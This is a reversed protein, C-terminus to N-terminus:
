LIVRGVQHAPDDGLDARLGALQDAIALSAHVEALKMAVGLRANARGILDRQHPRNAYLDHIEADLNEVERAYALAEDAALSSPAHPANERM